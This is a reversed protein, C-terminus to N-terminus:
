KTKATTPAEPAKRGLKDLYYALLPRSPLDPRLRLANEFHDGARSPQGAELYCFGIECEWTAQNGLQGPLELFSTAAPRPDGALFTRAAEMAKLSEAARIQMVANTWLPAAVEYHGLLFNVMGQRYGATGPGTSLQPDELNGIHPVAKEPEGIQCYLDVLTAKVSQMPVGTDLALELEEIAVMPLGRSRAFEARQLPNSQDLNELQTKIQDVGLTLDNARKDSAESFEGVPTLRRAAELHELELDYYNVRQFLQALQLHLSALELRGDSERPEITSRIAYTLATVQERFRFLLFASPEASAAALIRSEQETLVRYAETLIRWAAPDDPNRALATRAERIALLCHAVHPSARDQRPDRDWTALWRGAAKAHPQVTLQSRNPFLSDVWSVSTPTRDPAEVPADLAFARKEAKLSHDRFYALDARPADARGFMIINGDDYFPIWDPSAFLGEVVPSDSEPNVMVGRIEYRNLIPRWVAADKDRFARRLTQLERQLSHPFLNRRSDIFTKRDPNEPWSRWIIADGQSLRLNLINRPVAKDRLYKAVDFNFEDPNAGFGFVPEAASAGYGTLGKALLGFIVLLTVARGGVSWTAWGRGLHGELGYADHYWEQGNSALVAALVLAFDAEHTGLAGWLVAAFAFILFRGLSFRRWNLQFSGLGLVVLAAYFGMYYRPAFRDGGHIDTLYQQSRRGFYSIQDQTLPGLDRQFLEIYPMLAARYAGLFSPNLLCVAACLGLVILGRSSPQVPAESKRRARFMGGVVALALVVLGYLFSEDSNAWVLFLPILGFLAGARGLDFARHLVVLEIALFLLGWTAPDVSAPGALGGLTALFPSSGGPLPKLIGGLALGACIAVWWLGPGPRRLGLLIAATAARILATLAVLVIAGVQEGLDKGGARASLDYILATVLEFLWPINIWRQGGMTYSFPDVTIPWGRAMILRGAEIRAWLASNVIKHASGLFVLLLVGAAVYLDYYRNWELV